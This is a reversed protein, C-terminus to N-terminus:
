RHKDRVNKCHTKKLNRNWPLHSIINIKDIPQFFVYIILIYSFSLSSSLSCFGYISFVSIYVSSCAFLSVYSSFCFYHTFIPRQWKENEVFPDRACCTFHNFWIAIPLHAVSKYWAIIASSYKRNASPSTFYTPGTTVNKHIATTKCKTCFLSRIVKKRAQKDNHNM